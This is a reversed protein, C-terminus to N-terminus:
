VDFVVEFTPAGPTATLVQDFIRLETTVHGNEKAKKVFDRYSKLNLAPKYVILTEMYVKVLNQAELLADEPSRGTAEFRQVFLDLLESEMKPLLGADLKRTLKHTLKIEAKVDGEFEVPLKNIGEKPNSFYLQALEKRAKLEERKLSALHKVLKKHAEIKNLEETSNQM